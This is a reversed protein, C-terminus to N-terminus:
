IEVLLVVLLKPFFANKLIPWLSQFIYKVSGYSAKKHHHPHLPTPPTDSYFHQDGHNVPLSFNFFFCYQSFRGLATRWFVFSPGFHLHNLIEYKYNRKKFINNGAYLKLWCTGTSMMQTKKIGSDTASFRLALLFWRIIDSIKCYLKAWFVVSMKRIEVWIFNSIFHKWFVALLSEWNIFKGAFM